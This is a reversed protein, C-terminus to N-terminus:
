RGSHKRLVAKVFDPLEVGAESSLSALLDYEAVEKGRWTLDLRRVQLTAVHTYSMPQCWFCVRCVEPRKDTTWNPCHECVWSKGRNCTRCVLMYDEVRLEGLAEGGVEYPVRHDIQLFSADCELSCLSCKLGYHELLLKKFRKPFNRRGSQTAGRVVAADQFRYAAITRGDTAKVKVVELPIGQERVDRAARPPHNYHYVEKLEETTIQGYKLIHDIVTKARKATVAHLKALFEEPYQNEAM